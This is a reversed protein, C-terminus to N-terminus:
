EVAGKTIYGFGDCQPFRARKSYWTYFFQDGMGCRTVADYFNGSDVNWYVNSPIPPLAEVKPQSRDVLAYVSEAEHFAQAAVNEPVSASKGWQGHRRMIDWSGDSQRVYRSPTKDYLWFVVFDNPLM